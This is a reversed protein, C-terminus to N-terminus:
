LLNGKKKKAKYHGWFEDVMKKQLQDDYGLERFLEILMARIEKEDFGQEDMVGIQDYIHSMPNVSEDIEEFSKKNGM